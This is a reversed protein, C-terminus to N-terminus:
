PQKRCIFYATGTNGTVGFDREANDYVSVSTFGVNELASQIEAQSYAKVLWDNDSRQWEGEVSQFITMKYQGIKEEPNYIGRFAWAYDDQVDGEVVAGKWRESHYYEELDMDFFFLGKDLLADYVNRFITTLEELNLFHNLAANTSVVGSFTPPLKFSRADSLIFKGEPANERAYDLMRESADLGTVRYGKMALQQVVQGTGCCLDLIDAGKSLHQLLLKDLIPQIKNCYGPAWYINYIRAFPNYASDYTESVM